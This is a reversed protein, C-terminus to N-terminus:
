AAESRGELYAVLPGAAKDKRLTELARELTVGFRIVPGAVHQGEGGLYRMLRRGGANEALVDASLRCVGEARAQVLCCGILMRALGQAHFEDLVAFALEAEPVDGERMVHAAGIARGNPGDDLMAGWAVHYHGDAAALRRVVPEPMRKLGSFFRLYRSRDSLESIGTRLRAEDDISIPRVRVPRGDKLRIKIDDSM